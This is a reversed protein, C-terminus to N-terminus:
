NGDCSTSMSLGMRWLNTWEGIVVDQLLSNWLKMVHQTIFNKRFRGDKLKVPQGQIKTNHSVSFLKKRGVTEMGSMIKYFEIM